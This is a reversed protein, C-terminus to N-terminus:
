AREKEEALPFGYIPIGCVSDPSGESIYFMYKYPFLYLHLPM